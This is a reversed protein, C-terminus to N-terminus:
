TWLQGTMRKRKM